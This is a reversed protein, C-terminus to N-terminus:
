YREDRRRRDDEECRRRYDENDKDRRRRDDEECRRRYDENDENRKMHDSEDDEDRRIRSRHATEYERFLDNFSVRLYVVRYLSFVLYFSFKSLKIVEKILHEMTSPIDKAAEVIFFPLQFINCAYGRRWFEETEKDTIKYKIKM